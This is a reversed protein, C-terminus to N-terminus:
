LTSEKVNIKDLSDPIYRTWVPRFIVQINNLSNNYKMIITKLDAGKKGALDKKLQEVDYDWKIFAEGDFIVNVTKELSLDLQDKSEILSTFNQGPIFKVVSDKLDIGKKEAIYHSFKNNNFLIAKIQGEIQISVKDDDIPTDPLNKYDIFYFDELLVYNESKISYIETLLQEKLKLKLSDIEKSKTEESVIRKTGVFGGTIDEKLRAYFSTYRPDGKFGPITFDGKFDEVRLDYGSGPQDAYVLTEISGPVKKGDVNTIGPVVISNNIRYIKGDLSEFRTNNILRQPATSFNNYIIIKGSSKLSVEKEEEASIESSMTKKTSVTEYGLDGEPELSIKYIEDSFIIKEYKPDVSITASSFLISITFFLSSICILAIAWIVFKPNVGKRSWNVSNKKEKVINVSFKKEKDKSIPVQRISKKNVIIDNIIKKTM